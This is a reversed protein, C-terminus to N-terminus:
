REAELAGVGELSRGSFHALREGFFDSLDLPTCKNDRRCYLQPNGAPWFGVEKVYRLRVM